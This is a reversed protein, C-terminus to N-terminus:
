SPRGDGGVVRRNGFLDNCNVRRDTPALAMRTRVPDRNRFVVCGSDQCDRVRPRVLAFLRRDAGGKLTDGRTVRRTSAPIRRRRHRRVGPARQREETEATAARSSHRGPRRRDMWLTWAGIAILGLLDVDRTWRLACLSCPRVQASSVAEAAAILTRTEAPASQM